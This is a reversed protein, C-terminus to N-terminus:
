TVRGGAGASLLPLTGMGTDAPMPEGDPWRYSSVGWEPVGNNNADRELAYSSINVSNNQNGGLVLLRGSSSKGAVFGVHGSGSSRGKRFFTVVCGVAPGSLGKGWAEWARARAGGRSLVELGAEALVGGVFAGCWPTEDDTFGANIDSWWSLIQPNHRAGVIEKLGLYGRAVGMWHPEGEMPSAGGGGGGGPPAPARPQPKEALAEETVPGIYPRARLGVSAKFQILAGDTKEGREGDVDGPNFGHEKLRTQVASWYAKSAEKLTM